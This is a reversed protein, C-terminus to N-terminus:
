GECNVDQLTGTLGALAYEVHRGGRVFASPVDTNNTFTQSTSGPNITITATASPRAAMAVASPIRLRVLEPSGAAPNSSSRGGFAATGNQVATSTPLPSRMATPITDNALVSM